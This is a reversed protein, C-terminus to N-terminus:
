TCPRWSPRRWRSPWPAPPQTARWCSSSSAPLFVVRYPLKRPYGSFVDQFTQLGKLIDKEVHRATRKHHMGVFTSVCVVLIQEKFHYNHRRATKLFSSGSEAMSAGRGGTTTRGTRLPLPPPPRSAGDATSSPNRRQRRRPLWWPPCANCTLVNRLVENAQHSERRNPVSRQM